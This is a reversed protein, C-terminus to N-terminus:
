GLLRARIATLDDEGLGAARLYADADLSALTDLILARASTGERGLRDEAWAGEDDRGFRAWHPRLRDNSLEYDSAIEEPAVGVLALLLLTVIGTRDRGIGCHFVVGGPGACRRRRRGRM